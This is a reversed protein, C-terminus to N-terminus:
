STDEMIKLLGKQRFTKKKRSILIAVIVKKQNTNTHYKRTM